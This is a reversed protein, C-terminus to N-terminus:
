SRNWPMLGLVYAMGCMGTIGAFLLGAGVFASLAYWWENVMTGLIVGLLILSGAFIMVQRIIPIVNKGTRIVAFGEHEWATLGGGVNIAHVGAETLVQCVQASRVGSGCQVYVTGIGKLKEIADKVDSVPINEADAIHEHKFEDPERVDLLVEDHDDDSLRDKLEKPTISEM